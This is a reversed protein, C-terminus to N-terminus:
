TIWNYSNLAQILIVVHMVAVYFYIIILGYRKPM